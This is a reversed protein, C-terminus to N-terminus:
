LILTGTPFNFKRKLRRVIGRSLYSLRPIERKLSVFGLQINLMGCNVVGLWNDDRILRVFPVMSIPDNVIYPGYREGGM